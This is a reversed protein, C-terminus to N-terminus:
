RSVRVRYFHASDSRPLIVSMTGNSGPMSTFAPLNTWGGNDLAGRAEVTYFRGTIASWAVATGGRTADIRGIAFPPSPAFPSSGVLDEDGNSIGDGDRDSVPNLVLVDLTLPASRNGAADAAAVTFRNTADWAVATWSARNSSVTLSGAEPRTTNAFAYSSVGSLADTVGAATLLVPTGLVYTGDCGRAAQLSAAGIAPPTADVWFPGNSVSAANGMADRATVSIWWNSSDADLTWVFLPPAIVYNVNTSARETARWLAVSQDRVGSGAGDSASWSALVQRSASWTRPQHSFVQFGTLGPAQNDVAFPAALAGTDGFIPDSLTARLLMGMAVQVNNSPHRTNWTLTFRNTLCAPEANTLTHHVVAQAADLTATGHGIALTSFRPAAWTIGNDGSYGFTLTRAEGDPDLWQGSVSVLGDGNTSQAAALSLSPPHLVQFALNYWTAPTVPDNSQLLVPVRLWRRNFRSTDVVAALPQGAQASLTGTAPAIAAPPCPDDALPAIRINDVYWGERDTNDDAGYHFRLWVTRGAYASLDFTVDQWGTGSGAFCPTGDPWPSLAWGTIQHTYPGPLQVFTQGADTSIEVIGGDFCRGAVTDLESAIWHNFTLLAHNGLSVPPSLLMAHQSCYAEPAPSRITAYFAGPPSQCRNTVWTWSFAGGASLNWDAAPADAYEGFGPSATWVLDANGGNSVSLWTCVTAPPATTACRDVPTGLAIAPYHLFLSFTPSQSSLADSDVAQVLGTFVDGPLGPAPIISYYVNAVGSLPSLDNTQWAGGNRQWLMQAATLPSSDTITAFVYYPPPQSQIAAPTQLSLAPPAPQSAPDSPDTGDRYESLLGFGDGDPDDLPGYATTGLYYLEWWDPLGDGDADQTAPVYRAVATRSTDITINTVPNDARGAAPQRAGDIEWGTFCYNTGNLTARTPAPLTALTGGQVSWDNTALIGAPLSSEVLAWEDTWIWTLTSDRSIAADLAHGTGVAPIDGTGRWGVCRCAHVGNEERLSVDAHLPNGAVLVTDGYPPAATGHPLPDAAVTLTVRNRVQFQFWTSDTPQVTALGARTVARLQYSITANPAASPLWGTYQRGTVQALADTHLIGPDTSVSWVVKAQDPDYLGPPGLQCAVAYPADDIAQNPLPTHAITAPRHSLSAAFPLAPDGFFNLGYYTWRMTGSLDYIQYRLAEKSLQSAEGLLCAQDSLLLNWFQRHFRQSSGDTSNGSGWGERANMLAAVPGNSSTLMTEAICDPTDDFRGADCAQSYALFFSANTLAALATLDSSSYTSLRFNYYYNGHGLHNFVHYNGNFRRLIESKPWTYASNTGSAPADYLTDSIDYVNNYASNGFGATTYWDYTGGRRIQEMMPTAYESVGGFGLHEGVHCVTRLQDPTASEYALTKRVLRAVESTNAVPFRGVCVESLLDVEGGGPGDSSEGYVGNTNADFTGDLCAYYIDAGMLGTTPPKNLGMDVYGYLQRAPVVIPSYATGGLLVYRTGWNSHADCIFNRIRTPYDTGGAPRAGSYSAYIWEVTVNTACFGDRNRAACLAQFNYPPPTNLLAASTIVVYDFRNTSPLTWNGGLAQIGSTQAGVAAVAAEGTAAPPADWTASVDLAEHVLLRSEAPVVQVAPVHVNLVDGEPSREIEWCAPDFPPWPTDLSYVAPDPPVPPGPLQSLAVPPQAHRVPADLVQESSKWASVRVRTVRAGRPLRLAVIGEPLVPLGATQMANAGAMAVDTLGDESEVVQAPTLFATAEVGTASYRTWVPLSPSAVPSARVTSAMAAVMMAAM